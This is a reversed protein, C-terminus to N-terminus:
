IALVLLMQESERIFLDRVAEFVRIKKQSPDLQLYKEDDVEISLLEQFSPLTRALRKDLQQIKEDLKKKIVFERDGEKIEFYSRVIDLIPLYMM